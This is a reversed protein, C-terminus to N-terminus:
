GSVKKVATVLKRKSFEWMFRGPDRFIRTQVTKRVANTFRRKFPEDGVTFDLERRRHEIAFEMLHRVMVLGPSHAAHAVDFSPKYWIVAGNYDFGYHFAIPHGDLEVVSFLLWGTTGLNATLSRYFTQNTPNVFLSPSRTGHWRAIHQSFFAPLYGDVDAAATFDRAVLRGAREFYHQARRLGPKNYIRLASQEHGAVHLTPCVYQDDTLTRYGMRACIAKVSAVTASQALVNNLEIIDWQGHDHLAGFVASLFGPERKHGLFDCYDARGDGLFRVVRGRSSTRDIILPALGGVGSAGTVVVFLPSYDAGFTQWWSDAWQRTQFVSNTDSQGALTNWADADFDIQDLSGVIRARDLPKSRGNVPGFGPTPQGNPRNSGAESINARAQPLVGLRLWTEYLWPRPDRPKPNDYYLDRGWLHMFDWLARARGKSAAGAPWGRKSLTLLLADFDGWLWRNRVGIRYPRQLEGTHNAANRLLLAPFDVGADIALQLSGWFRGNIEMLKPVGDRSDQKFEVMAVGHWRLDDLLTTAYARAAPCLPVSESLVSVGGWPPHERVRRHSFFAVARGRDYCAFVGIGPGPIREQLMVPFEHRPRAALDLQLAELDAAYSVASSAWGNPTLVRSQWPKIVVPFDFGGDDPLREPDSVVLSRPVPVGLRIATEVLQVKNAAREVVDADALPMTCGPEFRNRHRTTLFTTVDAVPLLVDIHEDRVLAALCEVFAASASVPDPYVIGRTCYRSSQALSRSRRAGVLVEHGARGLSRTIALAARTEGDTVFVRM